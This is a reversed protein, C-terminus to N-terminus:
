DTTREASQAVAMQHSEREIERRALWILWGALTWRAPKRALERFGISLVDALVREEEDISPERGHEALLRAVVPRFGPIGSDVLTEYADRDGQLARDLLEREEIMFSEHTRIADTSLSARKREHKYTHGLRAKFRALQEELDEFARKLLVSLAPGTNRKAPLARNFISLRVSGLYEERRPHREVEFTLHVLDPDFHRLQRDIRELWHDLMRQDAETLECRHTTLQFKM